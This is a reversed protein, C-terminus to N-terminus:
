CGLKRLLARAPAGDAGALLLPLCALEYRGPEIDCLDLGELLWIGAGLLVQHPEATEQAFGGVSLYDIGISRVRARVLAHAAEETVWVYDEAFADQRLLRRRSNRTRFLVREGPALDAPVQAAGIRDVEGTDVVRAPGFFMDLPM